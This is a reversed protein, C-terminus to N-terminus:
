GVPRPSGSSVIRVEWMRICRWSRPTSPSSARTATCSRSPCGRPARPTSSGCLIIRRCRSPSSLRLNAAYSRGASARGGVPRPCESRNAWCPCSCPRSTATSVTSLRMPRRRSISSGDATATATPSSCCKPHSRASGTSWAPPGSSQLAARGSRASARRRWSAWSRRCGTRSCPQSATAVRSALHPSGPLPRESGNPCSATRSRTVPAQTTSRSSPRPTRRLGYCRTWM